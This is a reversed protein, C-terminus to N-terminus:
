KESNRTMNWTIYHKHRIKLPKQPKEGFDLDQMTYKEYKLNKLTERWIGPGVTHTENQMNKLTERWIEHGVM